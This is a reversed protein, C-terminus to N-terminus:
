MAEKNSYQNGIHGRMFMFVAGLQLRTLDSRLWLVHIPCADEYFLRRTNRAQVGEATADIVSYGEVCVM